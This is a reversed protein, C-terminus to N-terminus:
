GYKKRSTQSARIATVERKKELLFIDSESLCDTYHARLVDSHPVGLQERTKRVIYRGLPRIRGGYRVSGQVDRTKQLHIVGAQTEHFTVLHEVSAFGIGPNRSM